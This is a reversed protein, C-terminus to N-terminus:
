YTFVLTVNTSYVSPRVNAFKEFRRIHSSEAHPNVSSKWDEDIQIKNTSSTIERLNMINETM